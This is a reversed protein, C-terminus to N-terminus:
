NYIFLFPRARLTIGCGQDEAYLKPCLKTVNSQNEDLSMFYYAIFNFSKSKYINYVFNSSKLEGLKNKSAHSYM